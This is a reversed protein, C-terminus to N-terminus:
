RPKVLRHGSSNEGTRFNASAVAAARHHHDTYRPGLRSVEVDVKYISSISYKKESITRQNGESDLNSEIPRYIPPPVPPM